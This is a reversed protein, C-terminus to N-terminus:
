LGPLSVPSFFLVFLKGGPLLSTLVTAGRRNKAAHASERRACAHVGEEDGSLISSACQIGKEVQAKGNSSIRTGVHRRAGADVGCCGGDGDCGGCGDESNTQTRSALLLVVVVVVVFFFFFVTARM